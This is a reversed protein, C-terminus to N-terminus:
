DIEEVPCRAEREALYRERAANKLGTRAFSALSVGWPTRLELGKSSMDARYRRCLECGYIRVAGVQARFRAIVMMGDDGPEEEVIEFDGIRYGM